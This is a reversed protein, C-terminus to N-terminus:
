TQLKDLYKGDSATGASGACIGRCKLSVCSYALASNLKQGSCKQVESNGILVLLLNLIPAKNMVLKCLKQCDINLFIKVYKLVAM